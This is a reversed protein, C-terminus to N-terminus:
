KITLVSGNSIMNYGEVIVNQGRKLGDVVLTKDNYSKGTKIYQKKAILNDGDGQAIFLFKGSVDQKVVISPVVIASDVTFDNINIITLINPKLNYKNEFKLQVKFTRNQPNVVNGTRYVPLKLSIDPYSPFKVFVSDGKNVVTLHSESVDATIYLESLNVFEVLQIGPVALEGEKHLISEVIGDFPAKIFCMDLQALLTKKKKELAEKNTKAQLYQIESGIKKDWLEKQKNYLTTSLELQEDLEDIGKQIISTNLSILVTGKTVQQGDIVHVQKIQGNTEASIFAKNVAEVSGNVEVYHEFKDPNIEQIKVFTKHGDLTDLALGKELELIKINLDQIQSKYENIQKKIKEPSNSNGCSYLIIGSLLIYVIRNM